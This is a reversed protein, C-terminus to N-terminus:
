EGVLDRKRQLYEDRDIEGRAYRGDLQDIAASRGSTARPNASGHWLYRILFVIGVVVVAVTLLPFLGHFPM